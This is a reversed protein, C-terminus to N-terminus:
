PEPTVQQLRRRSQCAAPTQSWSCWRRSTRKFAAPCISQDRAVTSELLTRATKPPEQAAGRGDIAGGLQHREDVRHPRDAPADAPGASAGFPHEAVAGVVVVLVAAQHALAADPRDDGPALGGVARAEPALAPDDLPGEGMQVPEPTKADAPIAVGLHM